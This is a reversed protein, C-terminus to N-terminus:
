KWTDYLKGHIGGGLRQFRPSKDDGLIPIPKYEDSHEDLCEKCFYNNWREYMNSDNHKEKCHICKHFSEDCDSCVMHKETDDKIFDIEHDPHYSCEAYDFSGFCEQCIVKVM